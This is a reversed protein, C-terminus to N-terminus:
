WLDDFGKADAIRHMCAQWKKGHQDFEEEDSTLQQVHCMEHLLTFKEQNVSRNYTPNFSIHFWGYSGHETVAEFNDDKLDHTILVNKPLENNFYRENNSAYWTDLRDPAIAFGM